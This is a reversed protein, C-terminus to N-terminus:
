PGTYQKRANISVLRLSDDFHLDFSVSERVLRWGGAKDRSIAVVTSSPRDVNYELGHQQLYKEVEVLSSGPRLTGRLEAEIQASPWTTSRSIWISALVALLALAVGLAAKSASSM